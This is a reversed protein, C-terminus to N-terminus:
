TKGKLLLLRRQTLMLEASLRADNLCYETLMSVPFLDSTVGNDFAVHPFDHKAGVRHRAACGDLSLAGKEAPLGARLLWEANRTCWWAVSRTDIGCRTLWGAEFTANHAVLFSASAIKSVVRQPLLVGGVYRGTRGQADIWCMCVLDAKPDRFHGTTEVDIALWNDSDYITPDLNYM